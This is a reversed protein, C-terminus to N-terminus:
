WSNKLMEHSLFYHHHITLFIVRWMSKSDFERIYSHSQKYHKYLCLFYILSICTTMNIEEGRDFGHVSSPSQHEIVDKSSQDSGPSWVLSAPGSSSSLTSCRRTGPGDAVGGPSVPSYNEWLRFLSIHPKMRRAFYEGRGRAPRWVRRLWVSARPDSYFIKCLYFSVILGWTYIKWDLILYPLIFPVNDRDPSSCIHFFNILQQVKDIKCIEVLRKLELEIQITHSTHSTHSPPCKTKQNEKTIYLLRPTGTCSKLPFSFYLIIFKQWAGTIGTGNGAVKEM